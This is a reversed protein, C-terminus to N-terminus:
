NIFSVLIYREGGTISLGEHYHTIRGPHIILSGVDRNNVTKDQRIFRCGGGEFSNNLCLNVTYASSDHHPKLEKQINLDYKVVFSININKTSYYYTDWMIKSIYNDVIFKWVEELGIENLHIDQTPHNETNGIRKDYYSKGGQSWNNNLKAVNLIETCFDETFIDIKLINDGLEKIERNKRFSEKLYKNEWEEINNRFSNLDIAENYYGFHENNLLWLFYNSKRMNYCFAMDVGDGKDLNQIFLDNRFHNKHILLAFWIYPVNWCGQRDRNVLEIYDESRKYFNRNDIDGWFNSLLANKCKLLPAIVSKKEKLLSKITNKNEFVAHSNVYFVYEGNYKKVTDELTKFLTNDSKICIFKENIKTINKHTDKYVYVYTILDKPYDLNLISEITKYSFNPFDEYIIIIKPLVNLNNICKYGYTSNWGAVCYNSLRNLRYKITAPGNGHIFSPRHGKVTICSKNLEVNIGHEGNLCVFIYNYYDLVIKNDIQLSELFRHTYYLQDDDNNNIPLETIKKLDDSWGVFNGSNLYKNEVDITPYKDMLNTDPWCSCEAGFVIKGNYYMKYADLLETVHNNAIVDYSDTFVILTNKELTSLYQKLFNIKQGGGTGAAMDGGKWSTDLGLVIPNYGYRKCSQRYRKVCDNEETGVTLLTVENTYVPVPDSFYTGSDSFANNKPKVISPNIAWYKTDFPIIENLGYIAKKGFMWPIYEDVPFIKDEYVNSEIQKENRLYKAGNKSLIYGITWYSSESKVININDSLNLYEIKSKDVNYEKVNSMKKRGLYMFHFNVKGEYSVLKCFENENAIVFDDELVIASEETSEEIEKWVLNHSLACGVEGRTLHLHSWPDRWKKYINYQELMSGDIADIIEYNTINLRQFTEKIKIRNELARKLSIIYIKM